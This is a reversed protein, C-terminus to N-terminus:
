ITLLKNSNTSSSVFIRFTCIFLIPVFLAFKGHVGLFAVMNSRRCLAIKSVAHMQATFEKIVWGSAVGGVGIRSLLTPFSKVVGLLRMADKVQSHRITLSHFCSLM